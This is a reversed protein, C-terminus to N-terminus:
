CASYGVWRAETVYERLRAQAAAYEPPLEGGFAADNAEASEWRSISVYEREADGKEARLLNAELCGPLNRYAPLLQLRMFSEFEAAQVDHKLNCTFIGIMESM